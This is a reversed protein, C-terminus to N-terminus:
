REHPHCAMILRTDLGGTLAIGIPSGHNFYLALKRRFAERFREEYEAESLESLAEWTAPSFYTERRVCGSEFTWQAGGPLLRVERFLTGGGTICGTGAFQAVGQRDFERLSPLVRLLAKAESAFYFADPTEHWYIRELGYRDNFLFIKRRRRDILLGSFLGNLKEFFKEGQEEYLGVLWNGGQGSGDGRGRGLRNRTTADAFCEGCFLLAIDGTENTFVQRDAFSNELATWGAWVGMEPAAFTGATCFSEHRMAAVM